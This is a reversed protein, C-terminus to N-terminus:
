LSPIFPAAPLMEKNIKDFRKIKSKRIYLKISISINNTLMGINTNRKKLKLKKPFNVKKPFLPEKNREDIRPKM